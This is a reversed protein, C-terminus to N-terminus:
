GVRPEDTGATGASELRAMIRDVFEHDEPSPEGVEEALETLYGDLAAIKERRALERRLADQLIESVPLQEDKVRRHLGEPLYVQMRPM